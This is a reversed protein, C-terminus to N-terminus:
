TLLIRDPTLDTFDPLSLMESIVDSVSQNSLEGENLVFLSENYGETLYFGPADPAEVITRAFILFDVENLVAVAIRSNESRFESSVSPRSNEFFTKKAIIAQRRIDNTDQEKLLAKEKIVLLAKKM